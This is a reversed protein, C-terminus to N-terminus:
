YHYKALERCEVDVKDFYELLSQVKDVRVFGILGSKHVRLNGIDTNFSDSGKIASLARSRAIKKGDVKTPTDNPGCRAIGFFVTDNSQITVLTNKPNGKSDRGYRVRENIM